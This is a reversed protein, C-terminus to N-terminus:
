KKRIKRKPNRSTHFVAFVIIKTKIIEYVVVFPFKRLNAQRFNSVVKSYIEPTIELKKFCADLEKLFLEGLGTYQEEYWGYAEEIEQEAEFQIELSYKM